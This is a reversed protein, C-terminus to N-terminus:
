KELMKDIIASFESLPQAGKLMTGNIFFSPTSNVGARNGDALDLDIKDAFRGDDICTKLKEMDLGAKKAYGPLSAEELRNQNAFMIDHLQWFKESSQDNACLGYEAAKRANTHDPLPFNKFVLRVKDGYKGLVEDMTSAAQSCYPCQFESFEIITVKADGGGRAQDEKTVPIEVQPAEPRVLYIELPNERTAEDLWQDIATKRQQDVLYEKVQNRLQQNIQNQPVKRKLIFDTIEKESPANGKLIHKQLFAESGLGESRPDNRILRELLITKLQNMKLDFVNKEADYLKRQIDKSLEENTIAKDQFKAALNPDSSSKYIFNPEAAVPRPCPFLMMGGILPVLALGVLTTKKM